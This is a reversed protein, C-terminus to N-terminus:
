RTFREGGEKRTEFLLKLLTSKNRKRIEWGRDELQKRCWLIFAFAEYAPVREAYLPVPQFGEPKQIFVISLRDLLPELLRKAREEIVFPFDMEFVMSKLARIRIPPKYKREACVYDNEGLLKDIVNFDGLVARREAFPYECSINIQKGILLQTGDRRRLLFLPVRGVLPEIPKTLAALLSSKGSGPKGVLFTLLRFRTPAAWVGVADVFYQWDEDTFHSRWSAYVANSEIDYENRRVREVIERVEREALPIQYTFWWDCLSPPVLKLDRLDLVCDRLKWMHWPNLQEQKVYVTAVATPHNRVYSLVKHSLASAFFRSAVSEWVDISLLTRDGVPACYAEWKKLTELAVVRVLGWKELLQAVLRARVQYPIKLLVWKLNSV